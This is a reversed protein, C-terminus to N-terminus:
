SKTKFKKITEALVEPDNDHELIVKGVFVGDAGASKVMTVDELTHVGVGCYINQMIGQERLHEICAKLTPYCPNINNGASKAQLYVFGNSKMAEGLENVPMHFQIYCSVCIGKDILKQKLLKDESGVVIIDLIENALCFDIYKEVGIEHITEEYVVILFQQHPYLEKMRKIGQLYEEYSGCIGLSAKMRGAILPSELYPNRAPLDVEIIDAGAAAYVGCRVITDEITPYGNSLYCILKM